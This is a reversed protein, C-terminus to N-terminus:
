LTRRRLIEDQHVIIDMVERIDEPTTDVYAIEDNQYIRLEIDRLKEPDEKYELCFLAAYVVLQDDHVPGSGTKLDHIRLKGDKFSIADATGFIRDSYYLLVEPDMHFGIADNIYSEVTKVKGRPVAQKMGLEIAEAAWAHIRTGREKAQMNKYYDVLREDSYKLWNPQSPSLISHKGKLKYHENWQM